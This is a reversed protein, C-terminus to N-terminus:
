AESVHPAVRPVRRRRVAEWRLRMRDLYLYVVPTTYLTLVQSFLLGGVIAIGLPRRMEAGEGHGLALPLGGLLAAMTTMMIPRFRLVAAKFIAQESALGERESAIAFDIMMIANKQVIGILLIIGILSVVNLENRTIMLALLAGVGASPLTSLITLPHILSEYLVGLVIYVTVLAAAILIPESSLADQFAQAAGQFSGHVTSPLGLDRQAEEIVPVAQSLSTGLPLNFSITVAPFQGQHNVSLATNSPAYHSFASLPVQQSNNGRVYLFKLGDPDQWFRPAVEMVVHYQNSQTYIVSVQRQGFADYLTNDIDRASIGMRGATVRDINLTAALGRDQQDSNVDALQPLSRLRRYVLPAWQNLESVSDSQLTYQYQASTSHGGIRLDQIAQLYLSAGAVRALKPRLRAIVQDTSVQREALPKLTIQVRGSNLAAGGGMGGGVSINMSDIAPDEVVIQAIEVLKGRMAQFSISQDAILSGGMRGVDQQPFFGKPVSIYLYVSLTVTAVTVLLILPQRGLVWRLSKEYGGRLFEVSGGSLRYLFGHKADEERRPLRACMMPTMTLSIMLSFVIAVSLTIAFERFLRGVIGPMLLIPIFVAILSISISLVTFGIEEVGHLAAQMPTMGRETHRTINEIV